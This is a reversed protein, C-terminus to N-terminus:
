PMGEFKEVGPHPLSLKGELVGFMPPLVFVYRM